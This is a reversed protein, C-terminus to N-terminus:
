LASIHMQMSVEQVRRLHLAEELADPSIAKRADIKKKRRRCERTEARLQDPEVICPGEKPVGALVEVAAVLNSPHVGGGSM